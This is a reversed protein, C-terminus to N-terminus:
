QFISMVYVQGFMQCVGGADDIGPHRDCFVWQGVNFTYTHGARMTWHVEMSEGAYEGGSYEQASESPNSFSGSVRKRFVTVSARAIEHGDENVTFEEGGEVTADGLFGAGVSYSYGVRRFSRAFVQVDHDTTLNIGFGAHANIFTLEHFHPPANVGAEQLLRGRAHDIELRQPMGGGEAHWWWNFHFPSSFVQPASRSDFILSDGGSRSQEGRRRVADVSDLGTRSYRAKELARAAVRDARILELLPANLAATIERQRASEALRQALAEGSRRVLAAISLEVCRRQEPGIGSHFEIHSNQASGEGSTTSAM